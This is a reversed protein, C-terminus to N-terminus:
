TGVTNGVSNLCLWTSKMNQKIKLSIFTQSASACPTWVDFLFSGFFKCPNESGFGCRWFLGMRMWMCVTTLKDRVSLIFFICSCQIEWCIRHLSLDLCISQVSKVSNQFCRFKCKCHYASFSIHTDSTPYSKVETKLWNLKTAWDHGVRRGWSDCYAM